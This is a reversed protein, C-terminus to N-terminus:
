IYTKPDLHEEVVALMQDGPMFIATYAANVAVDREAARFIGRVPVTVTAKEYYNANGREWHGDGNGDTYVFTAAQLSSVPVLTEFTLTLGDLMEDTIGVADAFGGTLYAGDKVTPDIVSCRPDYYNEIAYPLVSYYENFNGSEGFFGVREPPVDFSLGSRNEFHFSMRLNEDIEEETYGLWSSYQCIGATLQPISVFRVFPAVSEVNEVQRIAVEQEESIPENAGNYYWDEATNNYIVMQRESVNKIYEETQAASTELYGGCLATFAVAAACVLTVVLKRFRNKRASM